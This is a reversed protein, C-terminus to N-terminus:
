VSHQGLLERVGTGASSPSSQSSSLATPPKADAGNEKQEAAGGKDEQQEQVLVLPKEHELSATIERLCNRSGLYGKSLFFLVVGTARIYGELNGIDM